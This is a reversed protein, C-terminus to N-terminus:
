TSRIPSCVASSSFLIFYTHLPVGNYVPVSRVFLASMSVRGGGAIGTVTVAGLKPAFVARFSGASQRSLLSDRLVGGARIVAVGTPRVGSAVSSWAGAGAATSSDSAEIYHRLSFNFALSSLEQDSKLRLRQFWASEVRTFAPKLKCWWVVAKVPVSSGDGDSGPLRTKSRGSRSTLEVSPAGAVILWDTAAMGIAGLGGLILAEYM